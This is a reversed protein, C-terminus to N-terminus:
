LDSRIASVFTTISQASPRGTAMSILTTSLICPMPRRSVMLDRGAYIDLDMFLHEEAMDIAEEYM